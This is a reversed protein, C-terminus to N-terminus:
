KTRGPYWAPDTAALDEATVKLGVQRAWQVYFYRRETPLAPLRRLLELVEEKAEPRMREEGLIVSWGVAM